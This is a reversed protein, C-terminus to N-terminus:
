LKKEMKIETKETSLYNVMTSVLKVQDIPKALHEDMGADQTREKDQQMVAASLAFIPIKKYSSLTRISKTAEFGDMIPMQLDMLILDYQMKKACSVAEEGNNAIDINIQFEDLIGSLVVQNIENDEVLLVKKNKLVQTSEFSNEIVTDSKKSSLEKITFECIFSFISGVGVESELTLDGGMMSVLEKSIALGLGTGGYKRTISSDAQSFEQFLNEQIDKSMGIGSDEVCFQVVVTMGQRKLLNVDVRISGKETFKLANGVLNTLVQTLRLSDGTLYTTDSFQSHIVLELGKQTTQYEFLDRINILVEEINFPIRELDLKGAEIKSYDLIDNIVHLLAESSRKSKDLYESQQRNLPTKILLETLGLIGNLPTRIEHSMNALFDSKAHNANEAETKAKVLNDELVKKESMDTHFGVMRIPEGQDNFVARGRALIFKYSKDKCLMRMQAEYIESEGRFHEEIKQIVPEVDDPHVRLKWDDLQTGVDSEEYGLMSKWNKSFVVENSTINWDWIGDQTGEIALTFREESMALSQGLRESKNFLDAIEINKQRFSQASKTLDGIEDDNYYNPISEGTKGDALKVFANTLKSIPTVISRTILLSLVLLVIFLLIGFFAMTLISSEIESYITSNIKELSKVSTQSVKNAQYFVEYAEAAMVINVLFNFGRLYQVEKKIIKKYALLEDKLSVLLSKKLPDLENKELIIVENLLLKLSKKHATLYSKEETDFYYLANTETLHFYTNLSLEIQKLDSTKTKLFYQEIIKKINYIKGKKQDRIKDRSKVQEELTEFTVYYKKLHKEIATLSVQIQENQVDTSLELTETIKQYRNRADDAADQYGTYTFKQVANKLEEVDKVLSINKKDLESVKNFNEFSREIHQLYGIILWLLVIFSLMAM